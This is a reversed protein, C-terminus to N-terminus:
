CARLTARRAPGGGRRRRRLGFPRGRRLGFPLALAIALLWAADGKSASCGGTECTNEADFPCADDANPIYDGDVDRDDTRDCRDGIGDNDGDAQSTNALLPCNDVENAYGDGDLDRDPQPEPEPEPDPGVEDCADGIGDGDADAQSPNAVIPCNDMEGNCTAQTDLDVDCMVDVLTSFMLSARRGDFFVPPGNDFTLEGEPYCDTCVVIPLNNTFTVLSYPRGPRVIITEQFRLQVVQLGGTQPVDSVAFGLHQGAEDRLSMEIPGGGQGSMVIDVGGFAEFRPVFTQVYLGPQMFGAVAGNSQQDVQAAATGSALAVLVAALITTKTRMGPPPLLRDAM